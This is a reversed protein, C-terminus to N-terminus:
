AAKATGSAEAAEVLPYLEREERDIRDHLARILARTEGRYGHWDARVAEGTWRTIHQQFSAYLGGLEDALRKVSSGLRSTPDYLRSYIQRDENALHQTVLRALKWRCAALAAPDSPADGAILRGLEDAVRALAVHEDKLM